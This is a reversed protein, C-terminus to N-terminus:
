FTPGLEECPPRGSIVDASLPRAIKYRLRGQGCNAMCTCVWAEEGVNCALPLLHDFFFKLVTFLKM